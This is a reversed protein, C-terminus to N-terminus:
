ALAKQAHWLFILYLIYGVIEVIAVIVSLIAALVSIFSLLSLVVSVITCVLNIKWVTEGKKAVDAAGKGNLLGCSTTIVFYLIGLSVVSSVISVITGFVGSGAFLSIVSVVIGVISLTFATHYGNELKSAGHLAVLNLVFGIIALITGVLPIVALISLIEAIFIWKLAKSVTMDKM